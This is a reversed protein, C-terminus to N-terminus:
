QSHGVNPPAVADPPRPGCVVIVQQRIYPGVPAYSAANAGVIHFSEGRCDDSAEEKCERMADMKSLTPLNCMPADTSRNCRCDIQYAVTGNPAFIPTSSASSCSACLLLGAVYKWMPTTGPRRDEGSALQRHPDTVQPVTVFPVLLAGRKEM